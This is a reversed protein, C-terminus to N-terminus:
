RAEHKAIANDHRQLGDETSLTGLLRAAHTIDDWSLVQLETLTPFVEGIYNTLSLALTTSTEM